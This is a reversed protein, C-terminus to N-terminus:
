ANLHAHKAAWARSSDSLEFGQIITILGPRLIFATEYAVQSHEHAKLVRRDVKYLDDLRELFAWTDAWLGEARARLQGAEVELSANQELAVAHARELFIGDLPALAELLQRDLTRLAEPAFTAVNQAAALKTADVKRGALLAATINEREAEIAARAADLDAQVEARRARLKDAKVEIAAQQKDLENDM